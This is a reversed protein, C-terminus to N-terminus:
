RVPSLWASLKAYVESRDLLDWHNMGLGIWQNSELFRLCREQSSHLGLASAVPVLGDGLLRDDRLGRRKALTAAIAYCGVGAPLPVHRREDARREFRDCGNWDEDLLNGFRLDTIGASRLMGLRSLPATYPSIGALSQLWNGGRELPTGHHPTGLFVISRLRAPWEHGAETAFCQASRAVLGGMSHALITLETLPVPWNVLLTELLAALERGNESVHRGSNYHLYVPTYGLDRELAAGHDHDNRRWQRDSMCLGHVLVLVKGTAGPLSAELGEADLPLPRGNRRFTMQIALPNGTAVLHDGLVGNVAGRVADWERTSRGPERPFSLGRLVADMGTHVTRNVLRISRYVLGTIGRTGLDTAKGFPLPAAAISAHMGEVIRSTQDIADFILSSVGRVATPTNL